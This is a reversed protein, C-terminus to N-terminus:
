LDSLKITEHSYILQEETTTFNKDSMKTFLEIPIHMVPEIDGADRTNETRGGWECYINGNKVDNIDQQYSFTGNYCSIIIYFPINTAQSFKHGEAWKGLSLMITPHKGWSFNRCKIEYLAICKGFPNFAFRDTQSYHANAAKRLIRDGHCEIIIDGVIEENKRDQVSEYRQRGM